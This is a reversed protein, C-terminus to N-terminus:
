SDFKMVIAAEPPDRYYNQRVGCARFGVSEYLQIAARNSARVELFRPGPTSALEEALLGRAVGRRRFEPAVAINLIEREPGTQRIVLFGAVRNQIVAVLSPYEGPAWQAAEPSAAQIAAIAPLDGATASRIKM